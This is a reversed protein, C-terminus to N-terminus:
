GFEGRLQDLWVLLEQRKETQIDESEDLLLDIECIGKQEVARGGLHVLWKIARANEPLVNARLMNIGLKEALIWLVALLLTGIGRSQYEDLVTFSIEAMQPDDEYRWISAAGFGPNEDNDPDLACWVLHNIQDARTLRDLMSDSLELLDNWFRFYVSEVSLKEFGALARERDSPRVERLLVKQGDELRVTISEPIFHM